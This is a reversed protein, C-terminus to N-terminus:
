HLFYFNNRFIVFNALLQSLNSKFTDGIRVLDIHFFIRGNDDTSCLNTITEAAIRQAELVWGVHKIEIDQETPLDQKRRRSTAAAESEEEDMHDDTAVEVDLGDGGNRDLPLISTLSGLLARHNLDLAQNLTYFIQSVHANLLGPVNSLISAAVTRLIITKENNQDSAILSVIDQASENLIRWAIPNDESIM